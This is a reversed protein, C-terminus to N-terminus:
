YQPVASSPIRVNDLTSNLSGLVIKVIIDARLSPEALNFPTTDVMDRVGNEPGLQDDLEKLAYAADPDDGIQVFQIGLQRLPVNKEDLRRAFEIIVSKPDDTPVGDTIVLISIPKRHPSPDEIRPVYIDLIRRLREGLPTQGEPVIDNFFNYVDLESRLDPQYKPNNLCYIDLGEGGKLRSAEAVGALADRAETWLKGDMSDSDDIIVVLKFDTLTVQPPACPEQSVTPKDLSRPLSPPLLLSQYVWRTPLNAEVLVEYTDVDREKGHYSICAGLRFHRGAKGLWQARPLWFDSQTM